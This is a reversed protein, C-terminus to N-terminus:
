ILNQKYAILWNEFLTKSDLDTLFRRFLKREEMAGKVYITAGKVYAEIQEDNGPFLLEAENRIDKQLISQNGDPLEEMEEEEEIEKSFEKIPTESIHTPTQNNVDISMIWKQLKENFHRSVNATLYSEHDALRNHPLGPNPSVTRVLYKGEKEICFDKTIEILNLNM